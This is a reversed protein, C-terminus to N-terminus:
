VEQLAERAQEFIPIGMPIGSVCSQRLAGVITRSCDSELGQLEEFLASRPVDKFDAAQFLMNRSVDHRGWLCPKEALALLAALIVLASFTDLEESFHVSRRPHQYNPHGGEMVYRKALAPVCMGDFDILRIRGDNQLIVNGHQLDGHVLEDARLALILDTWDRDLALLRDRADPLGCLRGVHSNMTEGSVWGMMLAPHWTGDVCIGRVAYYCEGLYQASPANANLLRAVYDGVAGYRLDRTKHKTTFCKLAREAGGPTQLRFVVGFAGPWVLPEGTAEDRAVQASRLIPLGFNDAHQIAKRYAEISPVAM